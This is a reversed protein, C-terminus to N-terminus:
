NDFGLEDTSSSRRSQRFKKCILSRGEINLTIEDQGNLILVPFITKRFIIKGFLPPGHQPRHVYIRGICDGFRETFFDYIQQQSLPFGHSFTIFLSRYQEPVHVNWEVAYPSLQSRTGARGGGEM